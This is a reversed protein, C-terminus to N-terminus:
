MFGAMKIVTRKIIAFLIITIHDIDIYALRLGMHSQNLVQSMM